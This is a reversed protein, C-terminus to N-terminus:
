AGTSVHITSKLTIFSNAARKEKTVETTYMRQEIGYLLSKLDEDSHVTFSKKSYKLEPYYRSTYSFLRVKQSDNMTNLINMAMVIRRRNAKGVKVSSFGDELRIFDNLLFTKVEDETAERYLTDIGKFVPAITELKRFYLCNQDRYYVADPEEELVLRDEKDDLRISDGICLLKKRLISKKYVRQFHFENKSQYACLYELQDLMISDMQPFATSNWPDTLLPICFGSKSFIDIRYWQRDELLTEPSYNLSEEITLKYFAKDSSLLKLYKNDARGRVKAILHNM